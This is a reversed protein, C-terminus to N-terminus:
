KGVVVKDAFQEGGSFKSVVYYSGPAIKQSILKFTNKGEHLKGKHIVCIDDGSSTVLKVEASSAKPSFVEFVRTKSNQVLSVHYSNQELAGSVNETVTASTASVAVPVGNHAIGQASLQGATLLLLIILSGTKM